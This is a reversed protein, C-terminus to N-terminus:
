GQTGDNTEKWNLCLMRDFTRGFQVCVAHWVWPCSDRRSGRRAVRTMSLFSADRVSAVLVRTLRSEEHARSSVVPSRQERRRDGDVLHQYGIASLGKVSFSDIVSLSM